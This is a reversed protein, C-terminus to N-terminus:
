HRGAMEARLSRCVTPVMRETRRESAIREIADLQEVLLHRGRDAHIHEALDILRFMSSGTQTTAQEILQECFVRTRAARQRAIERGHRTLVNVLLADKKPLWEQTALVTERLGARHGSRITIFRWVAVLGFNSDILDADSLCLNEVPSEASNEGSHNAIADCARSRLEGDVAYECLINLAEEAGAAAHDEGASKAIDHLLAALLVVDADAGEQRALTLALDRVRLTHEYSYGPWHYGEWDSPWALLRERILEELSAVITSLNTSM